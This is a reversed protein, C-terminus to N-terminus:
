HTGRTLGSSALSQSLHFSGVLRRAMRPYATCPLPAPSPLPPSPSPLPECGLETFLAFFIAVYVLDSVLLVLLRSNAKSSEEDPAATGQPGAGQDGEKVYSARDAM